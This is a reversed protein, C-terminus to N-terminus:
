SMLVNLAVADKSFLVKFAKKIGFTKAIMFFHKKTIRGQMKKTGKKTTAKM